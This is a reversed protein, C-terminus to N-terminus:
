DDLEFDDEECYPPSTAVWIELVEPGPNGIAHVLGIPISICDGAAIVQREEGLHMVGTGRVIMYVEETREHHHLPSTKGPDVAVFAASISALGTEPGAMEWLTAYREDRIPSAAARDIILRAM